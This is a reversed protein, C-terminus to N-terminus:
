SLVGKSKTPPGSLRDYADSEFGACRGCLDSGPMVRGPCTLCGAREGSRRPCKCTDKAGPGSEQKGCRSCYGELRRPDRNYAEVRARDCKNCYNYAELNPRLFPDAGVQFYNIRECLAGCDTCHQNVLCVDCMNITDDRRSARTCRRGCECILNSM